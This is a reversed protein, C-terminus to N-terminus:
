RRIMAYRRPLMIHCASAAVAAAFIILTIAVYPALLM